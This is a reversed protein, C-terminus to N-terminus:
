GTAFTQAQRQLCTQDQIAGLNSTVNLVDQCADLLFSTRCVSRNPWVHILFASHFMNPFVGFQARSQASLVTRERLVSGGRRRLTSIFLCSIKAHNQFRKITSSYSVFTLYLIWKRSGSSTKMRSVANTSIIYYAIILDEGRLRARYRELCQVVLKPFLDLMSKIINLHGKHRWLKILM